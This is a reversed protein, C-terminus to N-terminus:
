VYRYIIYIISYRELITHYVTRRVLRRTRGYRNVACMNYYIIIIIYVFTRQGFHALIYYRAFYTYLVKFFHSLIVIIYYVVLPALSLTVALPHPLYATAGAASDDSSRVAVPGM